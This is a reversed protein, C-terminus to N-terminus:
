KHLIRSLEKKIDIKEHRIFYLIFTIFLISNLLFKIVGDLPMWWGCVFIIAGVITYRGINKLDYKIPYYKQNFYYSIGVMTAECGLRAWASGEYGFKPILMYNLVITVILGITTIIVAFFTKETMKYWFSLNIYVGILINSLLLIPIISIGVRFEKGVFYKFVDIYLTIFLFIAISAISFYKLAQANSTKFDDKKVNALFFPEAAFRYMQNFLYLLAAIKMVSTYIGISAMKEGMPLLQALLQRDIFENATGSIGSVVLPLSFIFVRKLVNYNFPTTSFRIEKTLLLLTAMSAILNAIFLYLSARESSWLSGIFSNPNLEPLVSYFLICAGVNIIVSFLRTMLFWKARGEERIKAYIIALISDIAIIAGVVPIIAIDKAGVSSTFKFIEPTFHWVAGFFLLAISSITILLTSFLEKKKEATESKGCFRFYGTELGLTLLTLGFPIFSYFYGQVGIIEKSLRYTLYPTLMYNIFKVLITSLGYIATQSALKRLM